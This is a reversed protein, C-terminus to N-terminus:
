FEPLPYLLIHSFALHHTIESLPHLPLHRWLHLLINSQMLVHIKRLWGYQLSGIFIFISCPSNTCYISCITSGDKSCYSANASVSEYCDSLLLVFYCISQNLLQTGACTDASLCFKITINCM